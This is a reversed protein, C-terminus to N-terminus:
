CRIGPGCSKATRMLTARRARAQDSVFRKARRYLRAHVVDGRGGCGAERKTVIPRLTGRASAPHALADNHNARRRLTLHTRCKPVDPLDSSIEFNVQYAGIAQQGERSVLRDAFVMAAALKGRAHKLPNLEIVDYRNLLRPGLLRKFGRGGSPGIHNGL